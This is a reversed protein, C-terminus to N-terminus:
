ITLPLQGTSALVALDIITLVGLLLAWQKISLHIQTKKIVFYDAISWVTAFAVWVWIAPQAVAIFIFTIVFIANVTLFIPM